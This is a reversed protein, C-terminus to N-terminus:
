DMIHVEDRRFPSLNSAWLSANGGGGIPMFSILGKLELEAFASIKSDAVALTDTLKRLGDM